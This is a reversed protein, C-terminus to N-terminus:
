WIKFVINWNDLSIVQETYDEKSIVTINNGGTLYGIFKGDVYIFPYSNIEAIDGTLYGFQPVKNILMIEYNRNKLNLISKPYPFKYGNIEPSCWTQKITEDYWNGITPYNYVYINNDPSIDIEAVPIYTTPNWAEGIYELVKNDRSTALWLKNITGDPKKDDIIFNDTREVFTENSFDFFIYSKVWDSSVTSSITITKSETVIHIVDDEKVYKLPNNENINVIYNGNNYSILNQSKELICNYNHITYPLFNLDNKIEQISINKFGTPNEDSKLYNIYNGNYDPFGILNKYEVKENIQVM